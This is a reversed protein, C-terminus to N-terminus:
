INKLMLQFTKRLHIRRYLNNVTVVEAAAASKLNSPLKRPTRTKDVRCMRELMLSLSTRCMERHDSGRRAPWSTWYGGSTLRRSSKM